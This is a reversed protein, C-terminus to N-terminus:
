ADEFYERKLNYSEELIDRNSLVHTLMRARALDADGKDIAEIIDLHQSLARKPVSASLKGLYHIRDMQGRAIAVASWAMKMGCTDFLLKHFAEDFGYVRAGGNDAVAQRHREVMQHLGFLLARRNPLSACRAAIEPELMERLFIAEKVRPISIKTIFSGQSPYVVVLHEEELRKIAERAPTRSIGAALAIAADSVPAGPALALEVIRQRIIRYLQDVVPLKRDIPFDAAAYIEAVNPKRPM